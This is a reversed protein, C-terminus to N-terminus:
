QHVMRDHSPNVVLTIVPCWHAGRRQAALFAGYHHLESQESM